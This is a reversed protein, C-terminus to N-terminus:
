AASSGAETVWMCHFQPHRTSSAACASIACRVRLLEMRASLLDDWQDTPPLPCHLMLYDSPNHDIVFGHLLLLEENSKDGYSIFLESGKSVSAGTHLQLQVKVGDDKTASNRGSSSASGRSRAKSSSNSANGSTSDHAVVEWWCQAGQPSHNAFDLGPVIGEQVAIAASSSSSTAAAQSAAAM